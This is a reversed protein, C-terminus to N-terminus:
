KKYVEFDIFKIYLREIRIANKILQELKLLCLINVDDSIEIVITAMYFNKVNVLYIASFNVKSNKNVIKKVKESIKKSSDNQGNILIINEVVIILGKVFIVLIVLLCGLFDFFPFFRGIFIFLALFLTLLADKCSRRASTILMQSQEKKGIEFLYNANLFKLLIILFICFIILANTKRFVLDPSKLLLYLSLFILILGWIIQFSYEVKGVGFPHKSNARRHRIKSGLFALFEEAMDCLTYYGSSLLTYSHLVLGSCIKIFSVLFNLFISFITGTREKKM